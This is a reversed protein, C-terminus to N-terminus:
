NRTAAADENRKLLERIEPDQPFISAGKRLMERVEANQRGAYAKGLLRYYEADYPMAQLAAQLLKIAESTRQKALLLRALEEYDDPDSDGHEIASSLYAVAKDSAASTRQQTAWDALAKLVVINEPDSKELQRALEWYLRRYEPHSSMAQGYAQLLVLPSVSADVGPAANLYTFGPTQPTASVDPFAEGTEAVIRHNTLASHSIVRIDRKPMHCGACDDAPNKRQRLLLPM